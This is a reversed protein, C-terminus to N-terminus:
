REPIANTDAGPLTEAEEGPQDVPAGTDPAAEEPADPVTESPAAGEDGTDGEADAPGDVPSADVEPTLVPESEGPTEPGAGEEAAPGAGEPVEDGGGIPRQGEADPELVDSAAEDGIAEPVADQPEATEPVQVPDRLLLVLVIVALVVAVASSVIAIMRSTLWVSSAPAQADEAAYVVISTNDQRPRARAEVESLLAEAIAAPGKPAETNAIAEIDGDSLTEVGDSALIVLDGPALEITNQDVLNLKEGTLASRLANRKPHAEAEARTIEGRAAMELLEGFFSHDANLRRLKGERLLFLISDGVSVWVLRNEATLAGILTCGMGTLQPADRVRDALAANAAELAETLRGRPRMNTSVHRFHEIFTEVALSSAVEGGAHGGMGDSLLLLVDEDSGHGVIQCSDEQAERQGLSQRSAYRQMM